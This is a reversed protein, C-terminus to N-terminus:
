PSGLSASALWLLHLSVFCNRFTWSVDQAKGLASPDPSAGPLCLEGRSGSCRCTQHGASKVKFVTQSYFDFISRRSDSFRPRTYAFHLHNLDSLRSRLNDHIVRWAILEAVTRSVAASSAWLVESGDGLTDNFSPLFYGQGTDWLFYSTHCPLSGVAWHARQSTVCHGRQESIFVPSRWVLM